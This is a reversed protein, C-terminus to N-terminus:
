NKNSYVKMEEFVKKQIELNSKLEENLKKEEDLIEKMDSQIKIFSMIWEISKYLYSAWTAM